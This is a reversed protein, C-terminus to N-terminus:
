YRRNRKFRKAMRLKLLEPPVTENSKELLNCYDRACLKDKETFFTISEGKKGARGTRGIRHCYDEVTLPFTFNIVMDVDPVDLGRSAVDTAILLRSQNTKFQKFVRTREGQHKNGHLACCPFGWDAVNYEM